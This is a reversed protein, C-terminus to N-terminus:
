VKLLHSCSDRRDQEAHHGESLALELCNSIVPVLDMNTLDIM